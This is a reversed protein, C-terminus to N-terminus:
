RKWVSHLRYLCKFQFLYGCCLKWLSKATISINWHGHITWHFLDWVQIPWNFKSCIRGSLYQVRYRYKLSFFWFDSFSLFIRAFNLTFFWMNKTWGGEHFSGALCIDCTTHDSASSGSAVYGVPCSQCSLQGTQQQYQGVNCVNCTTSTNLAQYKGQTCQWFSLFLVLDSCLFEEVMIFFCFVIWYTTTEGVKTCLSNGTSSRWGSPCIKCPIDDTTNKYKGSSCSTCVDNVVEEGVECLSCSLPTLGVASSM